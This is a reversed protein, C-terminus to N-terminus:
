GKRGRRPAPAGPAAQGAAPPATMRALAKDIEPWFDRAKARFIKAPQAIKEGIPRGHEDVETAIIQVLIVDCRYAM